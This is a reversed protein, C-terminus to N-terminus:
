LLARFYNEKQKVFRMHWLLNKAWENILKAKVHVDALQNAGKSM